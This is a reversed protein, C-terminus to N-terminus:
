LDLLRLDLFSAGNVMEVKPSEVKQSKSQVRYRDPLARYYAAEENKKRKESGKAFVACKKELEKLTLAYNEENLAGSVLIKELAKIRFRDLGWVRSSLQDPRGGDKITLEEPILKVEYRSAARLWFDYDECAEFTEDFYGIDRFVSREVAATSMGICCLPLANPYVMGDPKKHKAKQPLLVGRRYWIEETHFIKIGPNQCIYKATTALKSNTWRDDSDLFALFIGQAIKIGNNRAKSAGLNEQHLCIIRKDHYANLLGYTGDSSGDNVVILEFNGYTQSLVSNIAKELLEGRNYAPIIVSFFIQHEM